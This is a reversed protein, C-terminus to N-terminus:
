KLLLMKKVATFSGATERYFYVRVHIVGEVCRWAGRRRVNELLVHIGEFTAVVLRGEDSLVKSIHRWAGQWRKWIM